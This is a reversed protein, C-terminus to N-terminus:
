LGCIGGMGSNASMPGSTSVTSEVNGPVSLTLMQVILRSLATIFVHVGLLTRPLKLSNSVCNAIRIGPAASTEDPMYRMNARNLM